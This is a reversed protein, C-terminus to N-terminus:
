FIIQMYISGVLLFAQKAFNVWFIKPNEKTIVQTFPRTTRFSQPMQGYRIGSYLACLAAGSLSLLMMRVASNIALESGIKQDLETLLLVVFIAAVVGGTLSLMNSIKISANTNSNM